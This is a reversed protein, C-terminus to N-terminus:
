DTLAAESVPAIMWALGLVLATLAATSVFVVTQGGQDYLAAALMTMAGATIQGAGSALGQGSAQEEPSTAQSMAAHANPQAIANFIAEGVGVIMLMLPTKMFGMVAVVVVMGAASRFAVTTAGFRVGIAGGFPAVVLFPIGYAALSVGILWTSAGLDKMLPSWVVEYMGVPLIVAAALAASRLVNRRRLLAFMRPRERNESVRNALPMRLLVPIMTLCLVAFALFPAALSGTIEFVAAAILPGVVIGATTASAFLGLRRGVDERKQSLIEGKAAPEWTGIGFGSIARAAILQWLTDAFAFWVLGVAVLLVGVIMMIRSYGVDAFRALGFQAIVATVFSVFAIFGLQWDAVRARDQLEALLTFIAIIGSILMLHGGVM